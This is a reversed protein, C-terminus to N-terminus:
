IECKIRNNLTNELSKQTMSKTVNKDITKIVRKNPTMHGIALCEELFRGGMDVNGGLFDNNHKTQPFCRDFIIM